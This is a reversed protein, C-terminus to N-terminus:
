KTVYVSKFIALIDVILFPSKNKKYLSENSMLSINVGIKFTLNSPAVWLSIIYLCCSLYIYIYIYPYIYIYYM